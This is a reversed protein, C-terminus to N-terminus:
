VHARGIEKIKELMATVDRDGNPYEDRYDYNGCYGYGNTEKFLSTYYCLMMRFGGKKAWAIHEDVTKPTLDGTWYASANIMNGRRSEVGLPLNFDREFRDIHDLLRDPESVILAAGTHKVGNERLLDAYLVRYGKRVEADIRTKPASALLNVAAKKDWSVNLWEGFSERDKIPIQMIRIEAVPPLDMNMWRYISHDVNYHDLEVYLYDDTMHFRLVAEYPVIEFGVTLYDGQLSIRDARYTTRKNPHALKVENHYPREQTATCFPIEQGEMTLEEGTKKLVLSKVIASSGLILRFLKNELIIDM